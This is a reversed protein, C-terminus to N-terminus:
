IRESVMEYGGSSWLLVSMGTYHMVFTKMYQDYVQLFLRKQTELM